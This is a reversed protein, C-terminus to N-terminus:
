ILSNGTKNRVIEISVDKDSYIDYKKTLLSFVSQDHRHELFDESNKAISPSDDILHYNCCINYWENAFNRTKDCVLFLIVSAQNQNSNKYKDDNMEMSILLDMKNWKKEVHHTHSGIIYDKKVLEIDNIIDDKRKNNIECGCDSYLLVDGDKMKEMTKKIIFPKWLWYGYGRKNNEMFFSHKGWFEPENKLYEEKYFITENFVNLDKAQKILRECAQIYNNNGDQSDEGSGFTIFIKRSNTDFNEQTKCFLFFFSACLIFIFLIFILSLTRKKM